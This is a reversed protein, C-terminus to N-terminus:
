HMSDMAEASTMTKPAVAHIAGSRVIEPKAQVNHSDRLSAGTGKFVRVAGEKTVQVESQYDSNHSDPIPTM